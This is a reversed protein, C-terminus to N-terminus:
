KAKEIVKVRGGEFELRIVPYERSRNVTVWSTDYVRRIHGHRDRYVYSSDVPQMASDYTLGLYTWVDTEGAATTRTHIRDPVGLAMRVMEPTFGVAVQGARVKVQVESPFSAFLTQNRAIRQEPTSVCGAVLVVVMLMYLWQMMKM